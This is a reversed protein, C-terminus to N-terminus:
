SACPRLYALFFESTSSSSVLSSLGDMHDMHDMHDVYSPSDIVTIVIIVTEPGYAAEVKSCFPFKACKEV